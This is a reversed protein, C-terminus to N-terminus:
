RLQRDLPLVGSPSCGNGGTVAALQWDDVHTALREVFTTITEGLTRLEEEMSGSTDGFVVVDATSGGGGEFEELNWGEPVDDPGPPAGRGVKQGTGYDMCGAAMLGILARMEAEQPLVM